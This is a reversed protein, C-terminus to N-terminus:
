VVLPGLNVQWETDTIKLTTQRCTNCLLYIRLSDTKELHTRCNQLLSQLELLSLRIEYVSKQVRNGHRLLLKEVKTRNRNGSIDYCALFHHM